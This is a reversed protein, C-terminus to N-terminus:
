WPQSTSMRQFGSCLLSLQSTNGAPLPLYEIFVGVAVNLALDYKIYSGTGASGWYTRYNILLM